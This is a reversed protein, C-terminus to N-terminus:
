YYYSSGGKCYKTKGKACQNERWKIMFKREREKQCLEPTCHCNGDSDICDEPPDVRNTHRTQMLVLLLIALGITIMMTQQSLQQM